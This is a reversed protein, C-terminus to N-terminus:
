HTPIYSIDTFQNQIGCSSQFRVAELNEIYLIKNVAFLSFNVEKRIQIGTIAKDRRTAKALVELVTSLTTDTPMWM